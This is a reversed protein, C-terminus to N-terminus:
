GAGVDVFERGELSSTLMTVSPVVVAVVGAAWVFLGLLGVLFFFVLKSVIGM